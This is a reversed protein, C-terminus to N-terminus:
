TSQMPRTLFPAALLAAWAKGHWPMRRVCQWLYPMARRDRRDFLLKGIFYDNRAEVHQAPPATRHSVEEAQKLIVEEPLGASRRQTAEYALAALERQQRGRSSGISQGRIRFSYVWDPIVALLRHDTLRLWLDIDQAFRFANRYGGVRDYDKKRFAVAGHALGRGKSRLEATAARADDVWVEDFLLEGSPGIAHAWGAVMGVEENTSLTELQRRFRGPLSYDDADQRAIVDGRAIRCGEILASTLGGNDRRVVRLRRDNNGLEALIAPTEDTSGDDVVILEMDVDTQELISGLSKRLFSAGNYVGM